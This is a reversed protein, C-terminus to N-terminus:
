STQDEILDNNFSSILFFKILFSSLFFVQTLKNFERDLDYSQSLRIFFLNILFFDILFIYFVVKTLGSFRQDPDDSRSLRM